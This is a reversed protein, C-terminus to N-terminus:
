PPVARRAGGADLAPAQPAPLASAAPVGDAARLRGRRGHHARVPRGPVGDGCPADSNNRRERQLHAFPRPKPRRSPRTRSLAPGPRPLAYRSDTEVPSVVNFIRIVSAAANAAMAAISARAPVAEAQAGAAVAGIWGPTCVNVSPAWHVAFKM